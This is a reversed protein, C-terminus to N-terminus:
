TCGSSRRMTLHTAPRTGVSSRLVAYYYGSLDDGTTGPLAAITASLTGTASEGAKLITWAEDCGTPHARYRGADESGYQAWRSAQMAWKEDASMPLSDRKENKRRLSSNEIFRRASQWEQAM